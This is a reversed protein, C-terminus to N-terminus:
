SRLYARFRDAPITYNIENARKNISTKLQGARWRCLVQHNAQIKELLFEISKTDFSDIISSVLFSHEDAQDFSMSGGLILSSLKCCNLILGCQQAKECLISWSQRDISPPIWNDKSSADPPTCLRYLYEFHEELARSRYWALADRSFLGTVHAILFQQADDRLLPWLDPENRLLWDLWELCAEDPNVNAFHAQDTRLWDCVLSRNNITISWLAFANIQRNKDTDPNRVRFCFKWLARYVERLTSEPMNGLWKKTLYVDCKEQDPLSAQVAAL